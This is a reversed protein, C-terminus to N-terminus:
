DNTIFEYFFVFPAMVPIAVNYALTTPIDIVVFDLKGLILSSIPKRKPVRSGQMKFSDEGAIEASIPVIHGQPPSDLWEGPTTCLEEALASLQYYGDVRTLVTAVSAPIRHYTEKSDEEMIRFTPSYDNRRFVSDHVLPYSLKLKAKRASLYWQDGSRYLHLKSKELIHGDYHTGIEEVSKHTQVYACSNFLLAVGMLVTQLM